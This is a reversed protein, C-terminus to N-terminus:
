LAKFGYRNLSESLIMRILDPYKGGQMSYMLPLDSYEPSLGPLPNIDIIRPMNDKDLRFDIRAIDRLDLACFADKAAAEIKVQIAHPITNKPHYVVEERWNRKVELSYIFNGGTPHRPSIKMMGLLRLSGNNGCLGATIEDGSLFEEIVIPQKYKSLIFAVRERLASFDNVISNTFIGKSSGEWRPKVIFAAGQRCIDGLSDLEEENSVMYMLPATIGRAKLFLNTLHKDLTIGMAVPGSGSYPINVSELISPVQSERGNTNGRGEAINFVFDPRKKLLDNFFSDGQEFLSVEFGMAEITNKLAQITQPEDYEEFADDGCSKKLNFALGVTRVEAKKGAGVAVKDGHPNAYFFLEDQYNRLVVGETSNSVLYDPGLPVKGRGDIGDVVFTPICMGSTYGRMKKIIEIGKSVPTRFHAAGVVPDCEFLYYPRVRINQLKHCLALMVKHDDNIGKLLVAQNNLPIGCRELRRCASIAQRTVERPHNFQLNIWLNEYKGLVRCLNADIRQPFVVPTRTGIRIVQINALQSISSLIQDLKEAPLTFPDGGSVIVERIRRNQRIYGLANKFDGWTPDHKIDRWLRKRTCHRCYMFCNSTVVLLVRDPYRHVLFPVPSTKEEGLPDLTDEEENEMEEQTPVCQKRIPDDPNLRDKILSFYYHPIRMRYASVVGQLSKEEEKTFGVLSAFEAVNNFAEKCAIQWCESRTKNICADAPSSKHSNAEFLFASEKSNPM